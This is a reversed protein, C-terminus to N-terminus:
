HRAPLRRRHVLVPLHGAPVPRPPQRVPQRRDLVRLLEEGAQPVLGLLLDGRQGPFQGPVVRRALRVQRLGASPSARCRASCITSFSIIRSGGSGPVLWGPWTGGGCYRPEPGAALVVQGRRPRHAPHARVEGCQRHQAGNLLLATGGRGGLLFHQGPPRPPARHRLYEIVAAGLVGPRPLLQGRQQRRRLQRRGPPVRQVGM